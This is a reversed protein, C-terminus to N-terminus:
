LLVIDAAQDVTIYDKETFNPYKSLISDTGVYGFWRYKVKCISGQLRMSMQKLIIKEAQYELLHLKDTPLIFSEAIKSGVNIITKDLDKWMKFLEILLLTQGFQDTANNIFVDCDASEQIIRARDSYQTIDYGTSKSFGIVNPSLREYLRKGIGSTHGTLAYKM